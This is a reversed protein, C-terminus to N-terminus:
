IFNLNLVVRFQQDTCTTGSHRDDASFIVMRNAVSDIKRGDKEFITYGDNDNIYFVATKSIATVDSWPIDCHYGHIKITETHPTLNVKAKLLIRLQPHLKAIIPEILRFSPSYHRPHYFSHVLQWNDVGDVLKPIDYGLVTDLSWPFVPNILESQLIKFEDAPLFNDIIQRM